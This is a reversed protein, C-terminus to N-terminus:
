RTSNNSDSDNETAQYDDEDTNYNKERESKEESSEIIPEEEPDFVVDEQVSIGALKEELEKFEQIKEELEKEQPFPMEVRSKAQEFNKELSSIKETIEQEKRPIAKDFLNKLRQYNDQNETTGATCSYTYEGKVQFRVENNQRDFYVSVEFNNINVSPIEKETNDLKEKAMKLLHANITDKKMVVYDKNEKLNSLSLNQIKESSKRDSQVRSLIEKQRIIEEPIKEIKDQTLATEHAYEKKFMDLEAIESSLEIFKKLEPNGEAAAQYEKFM